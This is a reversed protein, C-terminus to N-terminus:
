AKPAKGTKGGAAARTLRIGRRNTKSKAAKRARRRAMPPVARRESAGPKKATDHGRGGGPLLAPVYRWGAPRFAALALDSIGAVRELAQKKLRATGPPAAQATTGV